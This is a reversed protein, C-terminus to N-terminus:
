GHILRRLAEGTDEERLLSEGVLVGSFGARQLALVDDHNHIGSESIVKVGKPIREKLRFSTDINVEFTKLNRNNIGILSPKLRLARQLEEENHVEVLAELGLKLTTQYLRRLLPQDLCAVILLVFDAGLNYSEYIQYPHIIFDKRLLPLHTTKRILSLYEKRGQFYNRETVVSIASARARTYSAAIEEANFRPRIIGRSPSAKKVEAIFFFQEELSPLTAVPPQREELHFSQPDFRVFKEGEDRSIQSCIRKLLNTM